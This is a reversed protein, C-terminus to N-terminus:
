LNSDESGRTILVKLAKYQKDECYIRMDFDDGWKAACTQKISKVKDQPLKAIESAPMSEASAIAPFLGTCACLAILLKRM